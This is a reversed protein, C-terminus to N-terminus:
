KLKFIPAEPASLLHNDIAMNIGEIEHTKVETGIQRRPSSTKHQRIHSMISSQFERLDKLRRCHNKGKPYEVCFMCPTQVYTQDHGNNVLFQIEDEVQKRLLALYWSNFDNNM